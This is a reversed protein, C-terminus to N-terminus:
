QVMSYHGGRVHGFLHVGHAAAAPSPSAPAEARTPSSGQRTMAGAIGAAVLAMAVGGGVFSLTRGPRKPAAATPVALTHANGATVQSGVPGAASPRSAAPRSPAPEEGSQSSITDGGRGPPQPTRVGAAPLTGVPGDGAPPASVFADVITRKGQTMSSSVALAREVSARARKPAFPLLALALDAATLFRAERDHALCRGVVASLDAPTGPAIDSLSPPAQELIAAVLEPLTRNADYATRGTLLEFLTAGLSWIDTRHDVTATSRLQEPSMYCPSGMMGQTSINAAGPSRGLAAKSIGFDLIKIIRWGESRRVLFLNDPKIDRHIITRAHAESLGECAQIIYEAASTADLPGTSRVIRGLDEGQLYEMVIFPMGDETVDTDLVRAVHDSKLKAAAQAERM